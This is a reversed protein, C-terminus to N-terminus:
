PTAGTSAHMEELVRHANEPKVYIRTTADSAHGLHDRAALLSSDALWTAVTRRLGHIDIHKPNVGMTVLDKRLLECELFCTVIKDSM